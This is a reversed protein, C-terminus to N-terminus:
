RRARKSVLNDLEEGVHEIHRKLLTSAQRAEGRRCLDVLETHERQAREMGEANISLQVRTYRDTQSLLSEVIALTRPRDARSLLTSHLEANLEGWRQPSGSKMEAAFEGLIEDLRAFDEDKLRPASRRLLHPELTARLTFLEGIDETSLESVIAGKHPVITVLGESELQVLAERIPIRSIGFEEALLDQKLQFGEALEGSLIRRRLEDTAAEARTAFGLAAPKGGM